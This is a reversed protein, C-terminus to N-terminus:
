QLEDLVEGQELSRVYCELNSAIKEFVRPLYSALEEFTPTDSSPGGHYHRLHGLIAQKEARDILALPDRTQYDHLGSLHIFGCGFKYVSSTWGHLRSALKVMERDTVRGQADTIPWPKGSVAQQILRRRENMDSLSLLYIVRVMSDLEQRLVGVLTGFAGAPSLRALVARHEASRARVQRCFSAGADM